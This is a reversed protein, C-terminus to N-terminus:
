RSEDGGQPPEGARDIRDRAERAATEVGQQASDIAGIAEGRRREVQQGAGRIATQAETAADTTKDRAAGIATQAEDALNTTQEQAGEIATRANVAESQLTTIEGKLKELKDQYEELEGKSREVERDLEEARAAVQAACDSASKLKEYMEGKRSEIFTEATKKATFESVEAATQRAESQAQARATAEVRLSTIVFVGTILMGFLALFGAIASAWFTIMEGPGNALCCGTANVILLACIPLCVLLIAASILVVPVIVKWNPKYEPPNANEGQEPASPSDPAESPTM